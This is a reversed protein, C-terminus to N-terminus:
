GVFRAHAARGLWRHLQTQAARHILQLDIDAAQGADVFVRGEGIGVVREIDHVNGAIDLGDAVENDGAVLFAGL